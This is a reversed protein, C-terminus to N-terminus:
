WDTWASKNFFFFIFGTDFIAGHAIPFSKLLVFMLVGTSNKM